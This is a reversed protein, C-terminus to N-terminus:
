FVLRITRKLIDHRGKNIVPHRVYDIMFAKEGFLGFLGFERMPYTAEGDQLPPMNEGLEVTVEIRNTPGDVIAGAPNLFVIQARAIAIHTPAPDTLAHDTALPPPPHQGWRRDGKGVQLAAIGLVKENKMFGAILFRCRDVVMNSRWGLDRVQGDITVIRDRYIGKPKMDIM